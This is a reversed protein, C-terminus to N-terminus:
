AAREGSSGDPAETLWAGKPGLRLVQDLTGTWLAPDHSIVLCAIGRARAALVADRAAERGARDLGAEPEDLALLAPAGYLARALGIMRKQGMSLGGTPGAETSYGQPLRGIMEHAGAM